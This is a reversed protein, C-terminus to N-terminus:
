RNEEAELWAILPRMRKNIKDIRSMYDNLQHNIRERYEVIKKKSLSDFRGIRMYGRESSLSVIPYEKAVEAISLRAQRNGTGLLAEIEELYVVQYPKMYNVVQSLNDLKKEEKTM